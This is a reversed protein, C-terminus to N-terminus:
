GGYSKSSKSHSFITNDDYYQVTWLACVPESILREHDDEQTEIWFFMKTAQVTFGQDFDHTFNWVTNRGNSIWKLFDLISLFGVIFINIYATVFFHKGKLFTSMGIWFQDSRLAYLNLKDKRM